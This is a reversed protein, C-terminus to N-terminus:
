VIKANPSLAVSALLKETCQKSRTKYTHRDLYMEELVMANKLLFILFEVENKHGSFGQVEIFKLHHLICEAPLIYEAKNDKIQSEVKVNILEWTFTELIPCGKLISAMRCICPNEHSSRLKLRRLNSLPTFLSELATPDEPFGQLGKLTLMKANSLGGIFKTLSDPQQTADPSLYLVVNDLPNINQLLCDEYLRGKYEFYILKVDCIKLKCYAFDWPKNSSNEIFLNKLQPSCINFVKLHGQLCDKMFLNELMPCNLLLEGTNVCPPLAVSELKLTKLSSSSCMSLPLKVHFFSSRTGLKFVQVHDFQFVSSDVDVNLGVDFFIEVERVGKNIAIDFWDKIARKDLLERM